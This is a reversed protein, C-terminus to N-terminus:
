APCAVSFPVTASTNDGDRLNRGCLTAWLLGSVWSLRVFLPAQRQLLQSRTPEQEKLADEVYTVVAEELLRRVEDLSKGQAAINFDLCIAEWHGDKGKAYCALAIKM